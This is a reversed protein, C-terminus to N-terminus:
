HSRPFRWNDEDWSSDEKYAYRAPLKPSSKLKTFSYALEADFIPRWKYRKQWEAAQSRTRWRTSADFTENGEGRQSLDEDQMELARYMATRM